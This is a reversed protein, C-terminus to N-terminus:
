GTASCSIESASTVFKGIRKPRVIRRETAAEALREARASM